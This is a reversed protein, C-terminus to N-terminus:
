APCALRQHLARAELRTAIEALPQQQPRADAQYSTEAGAHEIERDVPRGVEEKALQDAVQRRTRAALATGVDDTHPAGPQQGEHDTEATQQRAQDDEIQRRFGFAVPVSAAIAARWWRCPRMRARMAGILSMADAIVMPLPPEPPRSRGVACIEAPKPESSPWHCFRFRAVSGRPQAEAEARDLVDRALVLREAATLQVAHAGSACPWAANGITTAQGRGQGEARL